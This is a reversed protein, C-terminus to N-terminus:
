VRKSFVFRQKGYFDEQIVQESFNENQFLALTESGLAQNIELMVNGGPKLYNSAINAISRYFLLPDNYPVFLALHPEFDLVNIAMQRKESDMVYPPNSVILDFLQNSHWKFDLISKQHFQVKVNNAAANEQAIELAHLSIDLAHVNANPCAKAIAIAICGSGTGLDLVATPQTKLAYQVLEETEPRPILTHENVAIKLDCFYTEGLIYQIPEHSNVRAIIDLPLIEESVYAGAHLDSRSVHFFHNLMLFAIQEAESSEYATIQFKLTALLDKAAVM